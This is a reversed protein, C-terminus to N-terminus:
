LIIGNSHDNTNLEIGINNQREFIGNNSIIDGSFKTGYIPLRTRFLLQATSASFNYEGWGFSHFNYLACSYYAYDMKNQDFQNSDDTTTVCAIKTGISLSYTSLKDSRTLWDNATQYNNNIIQYSQALFWDNSNITSSIGLTNYIPVINSAFVDDCNWANVFAILGNNHIYDLINNQDARTNEFDYGFQDCFIGKIGMQKWLIVREEFLDISITSDIYGFSQVNSMNSNNIINITNNHDPHSTYELGAGFIIQDYIKFVNIASSLNGDSGNILSPYGYYIALKKPINISTM